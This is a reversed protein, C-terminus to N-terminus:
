LGFEEAFWKRVLEFNDKILQSPEGEPDIISKLVTERQNPRIVMADLRPKVTEAHWRVLEDVVKTNNALRSRHEALQAEAQTEPLEVQLSKKLLERRLAM